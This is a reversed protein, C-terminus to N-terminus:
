RIRKSIVQKKGLFWVETDAGDRLNKFTLKTAPTPGQQLFDSKVSTKEKGGVRLSTFSPPAAHLDVRVNKGRSKSCFLLTEDVNNSGSPNTVGNDCWSSAGKVKTLDLQPYAVSIYLKDPGTKEEVMIISQEFVSSLPGESFTIPSSPAASFVVYGQIKGRGNTSPFKVVHANTDQKKIEYFNSPVANKGTKGIPEADVQVVYRYKSKDASPSTGHNLWATCYTGSSEKQPEKSKFSNQVRGRHFVLGQEEADPIYYRCSYIGFRLYASACARM